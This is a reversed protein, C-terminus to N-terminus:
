RNVIQSVKTYVEPENVSGGRLLFNRLYEEEDGAVTNSSLKIQAGLLLSKSVSNISFVDTHLLKNEFKDYRAAEMRSANPENYLSPILESALILELYGLKLVSMEKSLERKSKPEMMKAAAAIQEVDVNEYYSLLAEAADDRNKLEAFGNFGDMVAKIGELENNYAMYNLSLPYEMCIRVLDETSIKELLDVPIQCAAQMQELTNFNKWVNLNTVSDFSFNVSDLYFGIGPTAINISLENENVTNCTVFLLAMCCLSIFRKM